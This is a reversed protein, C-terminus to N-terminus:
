TQMVASCGRETLGIYLVCMCVCDRQVKMSVSQEESVLCVCIWWILFVEKLVKNCIKIVSSLCMASFFLICCGRHGCHNEFEVCAWLKM